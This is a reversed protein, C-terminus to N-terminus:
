TKNPLSQTQYNSLNEKTKYKKIFECDAVTNNLFNPTPPLQSQESPPKGKNRQQAQYQEQLSLREKLYLELLNPDAETIDEIAATVDSLQNEELAQGVQQILQVLTDPLSGNLKELAESFARLTIADLEKLKIPM